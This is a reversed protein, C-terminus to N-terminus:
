CIRDDTKNSELQFFTSIQTWKFDSCPKKIGGTGLLTSPTPGLSDTQAAPFAEVLMGNNSTAWPWCPRGARELLRLCAAAIQKRTAEVFASVFVIRTEFAKDLLASQLEPRMFFELFNIEVRPLPEILLQCVQDPTGIPESFFSRRSPRRVTPVSHLNRACM